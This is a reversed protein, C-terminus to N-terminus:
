GKGTFSRSTKQEITQLSLNWLYRNYNKLVRSTISNHGYDYKGLIAFIDKQVKRLEEIPPLGYSPDMPNGRLLIMSHFDPRKEYVINMLELIEGFNEKCIVTNIKVRVGEIKRLAEFTVWLKDWSGVERIRDHTDKLGDISISITLEGRIADRVQKTMSIVRDTLFANTPITLVEADFSACIEPLDKRLFPEGGGIDLWFLKGVEKGLTQYKELPLDNKPSFDIFCHNCRFNCHNTVHVILHKLNKHIQYDAFHNLFM